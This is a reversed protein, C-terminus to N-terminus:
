REEIIKNQCSYKKKSRSKGYEVELFNKILIEQANNPTFKVIRRSESL